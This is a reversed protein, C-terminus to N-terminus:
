FVKYSRAKTILQILVGNLIFIYYSFISVKRRKKTNM